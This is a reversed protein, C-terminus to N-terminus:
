SDEGNLAEVFSHSEDVDVYFVCSPNVDEEVM